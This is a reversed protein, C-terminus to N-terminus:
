ISKQPTSPITRWANVVLSRRIGVDVKRVQHELYGAFIVLRNERPSIRVGAVELEGGGLCCKDVYYVASVVPAVLKGSQRYLWEDKDVHAPIGHGELTTNTWYEVADIKESGICTLVLRAFRRIVVPATQSRRRIIWVAAGSINDPLLTDHAKSLNSRLTEEKIFGDYVRILPEEAPKKVRFSTAISQM